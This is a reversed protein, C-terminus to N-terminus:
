SEMTSSQPKQGAVITNWTLRGAFGGFAREFIADFFCACRSTPATLWQPPLIVEAFPTSFIGQPVIKVSQLGANEFATKLERGTLELQDDSYARDIRKRVVRALNVLSNSPSPENVALWGGPQLMDVIGQVADEWSELHHLVGIGFILDPQRPPQFEKINATIFSINPGANEQNALRILEASYDIGAYSSYHGALYSAAFGAGCGIELVRWSTSKPVAAITQLLRHKRAIRSSAAHDKRCYGAAINDFLERDRREIADPALTESADSHSSNTPM